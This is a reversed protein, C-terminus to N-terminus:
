VKCVASAKAGQMALDDAAMTSVVYPREMAFSNLDQMMEAYLFSLFDNKHKRSFLKTCLPLRLTDLCFIKEFSYGLVKGNAM